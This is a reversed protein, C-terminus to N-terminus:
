KSGGLVEGIVTRATSAMESVPTTDTSHMRDAPFSIMRDHLANAHTDSDPALATAASLLRDVLFNPDSAHRVAKRLVRGLPRTSPPGVPVDAAVLSHLLQGRAEAPVGDPLLYVVDYHTRNNVLEVDHVPVLLDAIAADLARVNACRAKCLEDIRVLHDLALAASLPSMRLNGGLGVEAYAKLDETLLDTRTRPKFHGILMARDHVAPDKTLLIGGHGGSVLKAAGLSYIAADGFTGVHKGDLQSAHAHSCDEVLAIGREQCFASIGHLDVPNGFVHTVIVARTRHTTREKISALSVSPDDRESDAFVPTAGTWFAPTASALFTFIPVIVEDGPGVGLAALAVFIASTGSNFSVASANDHIRSFRREIELVPDQGSYDFSRGADVLAQVHAAGELTYLPWKKVNQIRM